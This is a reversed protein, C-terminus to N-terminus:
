FKTGLGPLFHAEGLELCDPGQALGQSSARGGRRISARAGAQTLRRGRKTGGQAGTRTASTGPDAGGNRREGPCESLLRGQGPQRRWVPDGRKTLSAERFTSVRGCNPFPIRGIWAPSLSEKTRDGRLNGFNPVRELGGGCIAWKRNYWLMAVIYKLCCNLIAEV